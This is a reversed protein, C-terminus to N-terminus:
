MATAIKYSYLIFECHGYVKMQIPTPLETSSVEMQIPTPLLEHEIFYSAVHLNFVIHTFHSSGISHCNHWYFCCMFPYPHSFSTRTPPFQLQIGMCGM